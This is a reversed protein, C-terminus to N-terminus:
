SHPYKIKIHRYSSLGSVQFIPKWIWLNQFCKIVQIINQLFDLSFLSLYIWKRTFQTSWRKKQTSYVSKPICKYDLYWFIWGLLETQAEKFGLNREEHRHGWHACFIFRSDGWNPKNGLEECAQTWRDAAPNWNCLFFKKRYFLIVESYLFTKLFYGLQCCHKFALSVSQTPDILHGWKENESPIKL